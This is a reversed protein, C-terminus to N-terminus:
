PNIVPIGMRDLIAKVKAREEPQFKRFPKAMFDDCIGLLSLVCKVGKLYSSGYKGVKYISSSIEMVQEQLVRVREYDLDLAAHYLDVYLKPFMNAGGNVGGDAGMMVSEATLEEPGVLLSFEPDDKVLHILSQFYVMNASSDKLGIINPHKALEKVTQPEFIVKVYSPMNYLYLPLPLRDALETYFEILEQQAPAFYYPPASVVASAGCKAAHEAMKISEQLSTDTIGVLVPIRGDVQRCVREIFEYRLPYSLSPAEGTTGLIFLGHIGGEIMHEVLKEAGRTDLTDNDLLPTVMPPVIGRLKM